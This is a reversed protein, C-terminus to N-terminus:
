AKGNDTLAVSYSVFSLILTNMFVVLKFSEM